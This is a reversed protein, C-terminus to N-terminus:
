EMRERPQPALRFEFQVALKLRGKDGLWSPVCTQKKSVRINTRM